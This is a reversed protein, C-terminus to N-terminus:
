ANGRPASAQLKRIPTFGPDNGFSLRIAHDQIRWFVSELILWGDLRGAMPPIFKQEKDNARSGRTNSVLDVLLDFAWVPRLKSV